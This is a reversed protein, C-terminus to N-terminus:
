LSVPCRQTTAAIFLHTLTTTSSLKSTFMTCHHPHPHTTNKNSTRPPPPSPPSILTLVLYISPYHSRTPREKRKETNSLDHNPLRHNALTRCCMSACSAEMGMLVTCRSTSRPARRLTGTRRSRRRRPRLSM